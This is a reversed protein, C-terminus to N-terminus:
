RSIVSNRIGKSQLEQSHTEAGERTIFAGVVLKFRDDQTKLFYPSYGLKTLRSLDGQMAEETAFTGILNTYPTKKIIAASLQQEKKVTLAEQRTQYHGALVRLWEDGDDFKVKVVYPALGVKQYDSVIKRASQPLRCSSLLISYPHAPDPKSSEVPPKDPKTKVSANPKIEDAANKQAILTGDPQLVLAKKGSNDETVSKESVTDSRPTEQPSLDKLVVLPRPIETTQEGKAADPLIKKTVIAPRQPRNITDSYAQDPQTKSQTLYRLPSYFWVGYVALLVLVLAALRFVTKRKM